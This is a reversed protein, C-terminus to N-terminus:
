STRNGETPPHPDQVPDTALLALPDERLRTLALELAGRVVVDRGLSSARLQPTSGDAMERM